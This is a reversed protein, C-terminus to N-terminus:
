KDEELLIRPVAPATTPKDPPTIKVPSVIRLAQNDVLRQARPSDEVEAIEGPHLTRGDVTLGVTTSNVVRLKSPM